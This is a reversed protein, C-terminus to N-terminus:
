RYKRSAFRSRRNSNRHESPRSVPAEDRVATGDFRRGILREIDRVLHRQDDSVFSHAIGSRGARGTRGIRHVYDSACDPLDYNIVHTISAVDLGRAAIDTAVLVNFNGARYRAITRERNRQSIDSHIEEAEVNNAKLKRTVQSATRRTRTFVLVTAEEAESLVSLLLADKEAKNVRHARQDISAPEVENEKCRVLTPESMYDAAIQQMRKDLTATFMMTQRDRPVTAVIKKVQPAFGMDLMRDAEDLVLVEVASLRILGRELLDNLRGPTAIAIDIGSRIANIQPGYGTGGYFAATRIRAHKSLEDIQSKVQLALERTPVLVLAQIRRTLDRRAALREIIPLAYAATKGTGTQASAIVDSGDLLLGITRAQVETPTDFGIKTLSAVTRESLGLEAFNNM